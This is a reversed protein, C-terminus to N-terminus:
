PKAAPVGISGDVTQGVTLKALQAPEKVAITETKRTENDRLTVRRNAKDIKILRM